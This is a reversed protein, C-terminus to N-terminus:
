FFFCFWRMKHSICTVNFCINYIFIVKLECNFNSRLIVINKNIKYLVPRCYKVINYMHDITLHDEFM